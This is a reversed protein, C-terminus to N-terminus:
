RAEAHPHGTQDSATKRDTPEQYRGLQRELRGIVFMTTCCPCPDPTGTHAHIVRALSDKLFVIFALVETQTALGTSTDPRKPLATPRWPLLAATRRTTKTALARLRSM